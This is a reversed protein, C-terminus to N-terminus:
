ARGRLEARIRWLRRNALHSSGLGVAACALGAFFTWRCWTPWNALSPRFSGTAAKSGIYGVVVALIGGFSMLVGVGSVIVLPLRQRELHRREV